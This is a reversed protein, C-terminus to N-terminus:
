LVYILLEIYQYSEYNSLMLFTQAFTVQIHFDENQKTYKRFM